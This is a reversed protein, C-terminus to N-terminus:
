EEAGGSRVCALALVAAVLGTAAGVVFPAAPGRTEWLWGALVSAGLLAVGTLAHYIGFATGRLAPPAADAVAARLVGDTLGFYLGYLAFIGIMADARTVLALLAYTLGYVLFGGALIARRGVRDSLAGAWWATAAYVVNLLLWLLPLRATAIGAHGARLLLFADSSNGLSFVLTLLMLLLFRRGLAPRTGAGASAAGGRGSPAAEVVSGSASAGAPERVFVLLVAVALLGPVLTLAFLLRLRGPALALVLAAVLPGAVAGVTDLSRHLGFVRGRGVESAYGALMADRPASRIGKGARDLFRLGLVHWPALALALLPKTLASLGYGSTVWPKRAGTRDSLRGSVLKLLSSTAEAVGEILGLALASAGLTGILFAPLVPYAMDSALDTLLSVIGLAWVPRPLRPTVPRTEMRPALM